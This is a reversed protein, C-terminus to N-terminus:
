LVKGYAFITGPKEKPYDAQITFTVVVPADANKPTIRIRFRKGAEVPTVSSVFDPNATTVNLEKVAAKDDTVEVEFDKAIGSEGRKWVVFGPKIRLFQATQIKFTLISVRGDSTTVRASETQNGTRGERDITMVLEGAEGPAYEKMKISTSVCRCSHKVEKVSVSESGVNRFTFTATAQLMEAAPPTTQEANNWVLQANASFSFTSLTLLIMKM